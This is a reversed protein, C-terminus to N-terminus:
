NEMSVAALFTMMFVSTRSINIIAGENVPNLEDDYVCLITSLERACRFISDEYCYDTPYGTVTENVVTTASGGGDLNIANVLGLELLFDAFDWLSIGHDGTKGDVQVMILRGEKDHGVAARASLVDVFYDMEGTEQMDECEIEKSTNIFVEGDKLIWIVGAVLQMFPVEPNTVEEQSFYGFVMQGNEKIGFNANILGGSDVVLRGDSIVNGLCSGDSTNFFGANLGMICQKQKGTEVVTELDKRDCGGPTSPELVSLKMPDNVTTHHGQITHTEGSDSVIDYIFHRAEILPEDTSREHVNYAEHILEGEERGVCDRIYRHSHRPGHNGPRYPTLYDNGPHEGYKNSSANVINLEHCCLFLFAVIPTISITAM